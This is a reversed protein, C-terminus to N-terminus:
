QPYYRKRAEEPNYVHISDPLDGRLCEILRLATEFDDDRIVDFATDLMTRYRHGEENSFTRDAEYWKIIEDLQIFEEVCKQKISNIGMHMTWAILHTGDKLRASCDLIGNLNLWLSVQVSVEKPLGSPLFICLDGQKEYQMANEIDDGGYVPILLLKQGPHRTVFTETKPSDTPYPYGKRVFVNLRGDAAITGYNFPVLPPPDVIIRAESRDVLSDALIAAGFAMCYKPHVNRKVKDSGFLDEMTKHVLPVLTSGGTMLVYDIDDKTLSVDQITKEVLSVTRDVLPRIMDEFEERMIELEIDIWDGDKDQLLGPVIIDTSRSAGLREKAARAEKKLTAMFRANSTPDIEYVEKVHDVMHDILVQDLNDGGLWMDGELNLPACVGQSWVLLSVDFTGGGLDYVLIIRVDKSDESDLRYAIAAATPEDLIKVVKLGAEIAAKNTADKQIQSFYAPVTIVAHTVEEGLRYEGDSKLKSLIMSTIEVPSYVKDGMRVLTNGDISCQVEYSLEKQVRQVAPDDFKRGILRRISTITDKPAMPWNNLALEGVIIEKSLGSKKAKKKELGVVCPTKTRAEKNDLVKPTGGDFYAIIAWREGLDIGIAKGM